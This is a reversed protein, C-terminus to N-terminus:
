RSSLTDQPSHSKWSFRKGLSLQHEIPFTRLQVGCARFILPEINLTICGNVVPEDGFGHCRGCVLLLETPEKRPVRARPFRGLEVPDNAVVLDRGTVDRMDVAHAVTEINVVEIEGVDDEANGLAHGADRGVSVHCHRFFKLFAHLFPPLFRLQLGLETETGLAFPPNFEVEEDAFRSQLDM